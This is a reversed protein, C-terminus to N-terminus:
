TMELFSSEVCETFLWCIVLQGFDHYSVSVHYLKYTFAM